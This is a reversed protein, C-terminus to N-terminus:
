LTLGASRAGEAVAAVRGHYKNGARDFVATTINQAKALEAIKAGVAKAREVRTGTMGNDSVAALTKGTTDDILQVSTHLLSRFVALRPRVTTGSIKARIRRIRATRNMKRNTKTFM